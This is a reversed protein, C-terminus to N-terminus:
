LLAAFGSASGKSELEITVGPNVASYERVLRPGLEEGFTNSGKIVVKEAQAALACGLLGALFAIRATM